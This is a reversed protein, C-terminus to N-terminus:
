SDPPETPTQLFAAMGKVGLYGAHRRLETGNADLLIVTPYGRVQFRQVLDRAKDGDVKVAVIDAAADIVADATYM